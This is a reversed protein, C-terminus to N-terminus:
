SAAPLVVVHIYFIKKIWCLRCHPRTCWTRLFDWLFADPRAECFFFLPDASFTQLQHALIDLWAESSTETVCVRPFSFWYGMKATISRGFDWTHYLRCLIPIWLMWEKKFDIATLASISPLLSVFCLARFVSTFFSLATLWGREVIMPTVPWVFSCEKASWSSPLSFSCRSIKEIMLESACTLVDLRISTESIM